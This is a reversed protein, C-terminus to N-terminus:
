KFNIKLNNNNKNNTEIDAITIPKILPLEINIVTGKWFCSKVSMTKGGLNRYYGNHSFIELKGQTRTVIENVYWLGYGMHNTEPKSTIGKETSKQLIYEDSKSTYFSKLTDVIGNGTDACSIQIKTKNGHVVIISLTDNVAHSWFNHLVESFVQLIMTCTSNDDYYAEIVPLYKNRIADKNNDDSRILAIPAILFDDKIEVKLKEYEKKAENGRIFDTILSDFGFRKIQKKMEDNLLLRPNKFCNNKISFELFKYTLLVGLLDVEDVKQYVINYEEKLQDKINFFFNLKGIYSTIDNKCIKKPLYIFTEKNAM